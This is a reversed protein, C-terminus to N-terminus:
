QGVMGLIYTQWSRLVFAGALVGVYAGALMMLGRMAEAQAVSVGTAPKVYRDIAVKTLYPGAVELLSIAGLLIVSIIVEKKYPKLYRLLRRALRQDYIKGKGDVDDAASGFPGSM